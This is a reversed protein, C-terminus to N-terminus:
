EMEDDEDIEEERWNHDLHCTGAKVDIILTGFSGENIEWGGPLMNECVSEILTLLGEPLSETLPPTLQPAQVEGDDGMGDYPIEILELGLFRLMPLLYVVLRQAYQEREKQQRQYEKWWDNPASM